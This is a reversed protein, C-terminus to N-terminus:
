RSRPPSSPSDPYREDAMSPADSPVDRRQKGGLFSYRALRTGPSRVYRDGQAAPSKEVMSRYPRRKTSSPQRPWHLPTSRPQLAHVICPSPTGSLTYIAEAHLQSTSFHRRRGRMAELHVATQQDAGIAEDGPGGLSGGRLVGSRMSSRTDQAAQQATCVQRTM